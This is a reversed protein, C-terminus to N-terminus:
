DILRGFEVEEIELDELGINRIVLPLISTVGEYADGFDLTDQEVYIDADPEIGSGSLSVSLTSNDPDNSTITLQGSYEQIDQPTFTIECVASEGVEISVESLSPIFEPLNSYISDVVLFDEGVNFITLEMSRTLGIMTNPFSLSNTSVDIHSVPIYGFGSLAISVSPEDHDNSLIRM